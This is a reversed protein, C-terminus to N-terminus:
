VKNTVTKDDVDDKEVIDGDEIDDVDDFVHQSMVVTENIDDELLRNLNESDM